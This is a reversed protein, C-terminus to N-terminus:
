LAQTFLQTLQRAVAEPSVTQQVQLSVAESLPGHALAAHMAEALSQANGTASVFCADPVQVNRTICDSIVVPIGTCMAELLVLPQVESRSPLVLLDSSYLLERVAQRNLEGLLHAHVSSPQEGLAAKGGFLQQMEPGQTGRGAIYLECHHMMPWSQALVDYGKLYLNAIALCCIRYPRGPTHSRERYRFFGTDIVNSIQQWRYDRGFLHANNDVLEEAVPIVRHAQKYAAKLLPQAWTHREFHPGYEREFLGASLHETIFYPIKETQAIRAAAVGAWQCCHAHIVDPRGHEKEYRRYLKEVCSVWHMANFHVLKPLGHTNSRYVEVGDAMEKWSGLRASFYSRAGLTIGMQNCALLCVDHGAHRLAKAQDLCFAGGLPPYFSAIELIKMFQYNM